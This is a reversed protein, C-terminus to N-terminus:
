LCTLLANGNFDNLKLLKSPILCQDLMLHRLLPAHLFWDFYVWHTCLILSAIFDTNFSCTAKSRDLQDKFLTRYGNTIFDIHNSINSLYSINSFYFLLTKVGMFPRGHKDCPLVFVVCNQPMNTYIM